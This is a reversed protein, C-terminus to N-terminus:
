FYLLPSGIVRKNCSTGPKTELSQELFEDMVDSELMPHGIIFFHIKRKYNLHPVTYKRRLVVLMVVIDRKFDISVLTKIMFIRNDQM